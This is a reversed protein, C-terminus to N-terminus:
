IFPNGNMNNMYQKNQGNQPFSFTGRLIFLVGKFKYQRNKAKMGRMPHILHNIGGVTPHFVANKQM